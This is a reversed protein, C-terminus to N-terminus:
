CDCLRVQVSALSARMSSSARALAGMSSRMRAEKQELRVNLSDIAAQLRQKEEAAVTAAAAAAALQTTLSTSHRELAQVRDLAM